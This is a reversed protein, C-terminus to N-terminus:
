LSFEDFKIVPSNPSTTDFRYSSVTGTGTDFITFITFQNSAIYPLPQGDEGLLPSITPTIPPLGNPNGSAIYDEPFDEQYQKPIDRERKGWAAGYSNGVNSTELFNIGGQGLFRNWLHSHGYFVLQVKAKELLPILDRIIYDTNKPYQYTVSQINGLEDKEIIQLPNTYAPVINDGLTHAPHHFMVVKYKAQEFEPGNLEQELWIYQDSGPVIPEYIIQGYGWNEPSSLQQNTEKYRGKAPSELKPNRWANTVYLVILRVDGFSLAYYTKGGTKSKPLSFIEEYTITNFCYDKLYEKGCVEHYCEQAIERPITDNFEHNLSINKTYRGMIEHNGICPFLPANQIIKGGTYTLKGGNREMTYQARGQLGPFFANGRLDDFWESARDPVNVLDGAFWVADVVGVTEVVKQLNAAIMPKLQHDSTLLIKLPKGPQPIPTLTFVESNIKVGDETISTVYYPIRLNPTLDTIEAEQRWIDRPVPKQYVEGKKRQEKVRSEQDERVRTLKTTQAITTKELHDGYTVLHQEGAFETFWVVRVSNVMPLQLFPDTLLQTQSRM